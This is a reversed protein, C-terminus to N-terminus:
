SRLIKEIRGYDLGKLFGAARVPQHKKIYRWIDDQCSGQRVYRKFNKQAHEKANQKMRNLERITMPQGERKLNGFVFRNRHYM